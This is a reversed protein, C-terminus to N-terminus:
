RSQCGRPNTRGGRALRSPARRAADCSTPLRLRAFEYPFVSGQLDRSISAHPQRQTLRKEIRCFRYNLEFFISIPWKRSMYKSGSAPQGPNNRQIELTASFQLALLSRGVFKKFRIFLGKMARAM